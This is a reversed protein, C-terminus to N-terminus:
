HFRSQGGANCVKPSAQAVTFSGLAAGLINAERVLKVSLILRFNRRFCKAGLAFVHFTRRIVSRLETLDVVSM